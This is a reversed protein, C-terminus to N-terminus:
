LEYLTVDITAFRLNYCINGVAMNKDLSDIYIGDIPEIINMNLTNQYILKPKSYHNVYMNILHEEPRLSVGNKAITTIYRSQSDMVFSYSLSTHFNTNQTNIYLQIDDMETVVEEDIDNTYLIDEEKNESTDFFNGVLSEFNLKFDKLLVYPMMVKNDFNNINTNYAIEYYSEPDDNGIVKYADFITTDEKFKGYKESVELFTQSGSDDWGIYAGNDSRIGYKWGSIDDNNKLLTPPYLWFQVYGSLGDSPKIEIQLGRSALELNYDVTNTINYWTETKCEDDGIRFPFTTESSQWSSGNWYKTGIKLKADLVSYGGGSEKDYGTNEAAVGQADYYTNSLKAQGSLVIYVNKDSSSLYALANDSKYYLLPKGEIQVRRKM